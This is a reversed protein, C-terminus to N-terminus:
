WVYTAVAGSMLKARAAKGNWQIQVNSPARSRNLVILVRKGSPSKFAVNPLAEPSDSGIRVSGPRVFKAAHAIIYYGPNRSVKNGDITIGGLCRDCGGRDTHPEYRTDSSLNWELVNRSWNRTAGIVLNEVHWRLDGALDGPGGIWQETFYLNKDPHAEHVQALAEINGRYLHFASGDVYVKAESDNLISIPYDPRDCNHDYLIIKTALKAGKFSPGLYRKIFEAQDAAPMYMSPNNDPHLPENQITIADVVIGEAKMAELYKVLYKAYTGYFEKRLSAGRFDNTTKM